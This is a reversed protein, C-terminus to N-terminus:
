PQGKETRETRNVADKMGLIWGSLLGILLGLVMGGAFASKMWELTDASIGNM